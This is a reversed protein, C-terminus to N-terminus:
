KNVKRVEEWFRPHILQKQNNDLRKFIPEAWVRTNGLLVISNNGKWDSVELTHGCYEVRDGINLAQMEAGSM